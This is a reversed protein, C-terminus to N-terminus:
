RGARKSRPKRGSRAPKTPATPTEGVPPTPLPSPDEAGPTRAKAKPLGLARRTAAGPVLRPVHDNRDHENRFAALAAAMEVLCRGEALNVAPTDNSRSAGSLIVEVGQAVLRQRTAEADDVLRADLGVDAALLADAGDRQLWGTILRGLSAISAALEARGQSSGRAAALEAGEAERLGAFAEAKQLLRQRAAAADVETISVAGRGGAVRARAADGADLERLLVAGCELLYAFRQASYEAVRGSQADLTKDIVVALAVLDRAVGDGRTTKGWEVCQADTALSRYVSRADDSLAARKARLRGITAILEARESGAAPGRAVGELAGGKDADAAGGQRRKRASAKQGTSDTTKM